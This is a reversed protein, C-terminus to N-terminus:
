RIQGSRAWDRHIFIWGQAETELSSPIRTLVLTEEGAFEIRPEGCEGLVAAALVSVRDGAYGAGSPHVSVSLGRTEPWDAPLRTRQPRYLAAPALVAVTIGAFGATDAAQRAKM